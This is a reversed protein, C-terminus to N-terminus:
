GLIGKPFYIGLWNSFIIHALISTVTAVALSIWWNRYAMIRLSTYLLFISSLIFGLYTLAWPYLLLTLILMFPKKYGSSEGEEEEEWLDKVRDNPPTGRSVWLWETGILVLCLTLVTLAVLVPMFGMGPAAASGFPLKLAEYLYISTTIGIALAGAVNKSIGAM